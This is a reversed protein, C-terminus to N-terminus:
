PVDGLAIASKETVPFISLRNVRDFRGIPPCPWLRHAPPERRSEDLKPGPQDDRKVLAAVVLSGDRSVITRASNPSLVPRM